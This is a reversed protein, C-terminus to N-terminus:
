GDKTDEKAEELDEEPEEDPVVKVVGLEKVLEQVKKPLGKVPSGEEYTKGDSRLTTDLVLAM